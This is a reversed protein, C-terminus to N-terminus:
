GATTSQLRHLPKVRDRQEKNNKTAQHKVALGGVSSGSATHETVDSWDLLWEDAARTGHVINKTMYACTLVEDTVNLDVQWYWARSVRKVEIGRM